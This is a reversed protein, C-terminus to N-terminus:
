GFIKTILGQKAGLARDIMRRLDPAPAAGVRHDVVEAGRFIVLTPIARIGMQGPVLPNEQTDLKVFKMRGAYERALEEVVPAIMRCPGCWPAWFDVFVPVESQVVEREFTADTVPIVQGARTATQGGNGQSDKPTHM